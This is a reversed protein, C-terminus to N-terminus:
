RGTVGAVGGDVRLCSGTIYSARDSILFCAASAVEELDGPRGLPVAAFRKVIQENIDPASLDFGRQRMNDSTRETLFLGSSLTNITVGSAGLEASLSVALTDLAAKAASYAPVKPPPKLSAGSSINLIRGWGRSRMGPVLAQILQVTYLTSYQYQERWEEIPVDLWPTLPASTSGASNVLIDIDGGALAEQALRAVDRSDDLGAIVIQAQGGDAEIEAAVREAKDRSRGHVIVAAGEAALMKAIAAGMGSSSGAVLARRGKIGLDM